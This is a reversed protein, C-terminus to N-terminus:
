LMKKIQKEIEAKPTEELQLSIEEKNRIMVEKMCFYPQDNKYATAMIIAKEGVPLATKEYDGHTFSYTGNKMRYGPLYINKYKFIMTIYVNEYDKNKEINTVFDIQKTRRDEALRDINAWGLNSTKLFYSTNQDESFTNEGDCFCQKNGGQGWGGFWVAKVRNREGRPLPNVLAVPNVWNLGKGTQEGRYLKMRALRKKAPVKASVQKGKAVKLQKGNATANMYFMGGSELLQKNSKTVLNALAIDKQTLAEKLEFNIKGDVAKGELDVFSNKEIAVQMGEEGTIITDRDASLLFEQSKLFDTTFIRTEEQEPKKVQKVTLAMKPDGLAVIVPVAIKPQQVVHKKVKPKVATKPKSVALTQPQSPSVEKATVKKKTIGSLQKTQQTTASSNLQSVSWAAFLIIVMGTTYIITRTKM